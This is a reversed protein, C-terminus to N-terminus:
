VTTHSQGGDLFTYNLPCSDLGSLEAIFVYMRLFAFGPLVSCFSVIDRSYPAPVMELRECM